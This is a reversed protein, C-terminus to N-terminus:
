VHVLCAYSSQLTESQYIFFQLLLPMIYPKRFRLFVSIAIIAKFYGSYDLTVELDYACKCVM